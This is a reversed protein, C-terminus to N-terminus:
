PNRREHFYAKELRNLGGYGGIWIYQNDSDFSRIQDNLLGDYFNFWSWNKKVPDYILCGNNRTGLWVQNDIRHVALIDNDEPSGSSHLSDPISLPSSSGSSLDVLYCGKSQTAVFMAAQKNAKYVRALGTIRSESPISSIKNEAGNSYRVMRLGNALTGYFISDGNLLVSTARFSRTAQLSSFSDQKPYYVAIGLLGALILASSDNTVIQTIDISPLDSNRGFHRIEKSIRDYYGFSEFGGYYIRSGIISLTQINPDKEGGEPVISFNYRFNNADLVDLFAGQYGYSVALISDHVALAAINPKSLGANLPQWTIRDTRMYGAGMEKSGYWLLQGDNFLSTVQFEGPNKEDPHVFQMWAGGKDYYRWLGWSTGCWFGDKEPAFSYAGKCPFAEVSFFTDSEATKMWLGDDSSAAWVTGQHELFDLFFTSHSLKKQFSLTKYQRTQPDWLGVGKGAYGIFLGQSLKKLCTIEQLPSVGSINVSVPVAMQDKLLQLGNGEVEFFIGYPEWTEMCLIKMGQTSTVPRFYNSEPDFEVIGKDTGAFLHQQFFCLGRVSEASLGHELGFRSFQYDAENLALLGEECGFFLKASASNDRVIQYVRNFHHIRILRNSDFVIPPIRKYEASARHLYIILFVLILLGALLIVPFFRFSRAGRKM